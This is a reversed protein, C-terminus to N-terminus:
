STLVLILGASVASALAILWAAVSQTYLPGPEGGEARTIRRYMRVSEFLKLRVLLFSVEQGRQQLFACIRISTVVGWAAALFMIWLALTIRDDVAM